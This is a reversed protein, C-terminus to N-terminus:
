AASPAAADPAAEGARPEPPIVRAIWGTKPFPAVLVRRVANWGGGLLVTAGGLLLLTLGATWAGSFGAERVLVGIAVAASILGSVLLARRNILISLLGLFAVLALTAVSAAAEGGSVLMGRLSFFILPAAFLHLWFANDSYRTQRSPDRADFAVGSLFLVLGSLLAIGSVNSTILDPVFVFVTAILFAVTQVGFYGMAFPLKTRAYYVLTWFASAAASVLFLMRGQMSTEDVDSLNEPNIFGAYAAVTAFNAYATFGLLIVIAPLFLRRTRAFVEGLAWVIAACGGAIAATMWAANRGADLIQGDFGDSLDFAGGVIPAGVLAAVIGIGVILMALGVSLFIDNFNRIFRIREEGSVTEDASRGTGDSFDSNERM